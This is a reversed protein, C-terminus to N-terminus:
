NEGSCYCSAKVQNCGQGVGGGGGVEGWLGLELGTAGRQRLWAILTRPGAPAVRDGVKQQSHLPQSNTLPLFPQGTNGGLPGLLFVGHLQTGLM